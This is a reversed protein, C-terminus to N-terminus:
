YESLFAAAKLNVDTRCRIKRVSSLDQDRNWGLRSISIKERLIPEVKKTLKGRRPVTIWEKQEENLSSNNDEKSTSVKQPEQLQLEKLSPYLRSPTPTSMRVKKMSNTDEKMTDAEVEKMTGAAWDRLGMLEREEM